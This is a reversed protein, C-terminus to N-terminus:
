TGTRAVMTQIQELVVPYNPEQSIEKVLYVSQVKMSADILFVARALLGLEPILVGYKEGFEHNKYDSLTTLNKIGEAACWRSQAFPLDMSVCVIYLLDRFKELEEHFRRAEKSCVPTDLSPLSMLVLPKGMFTSLKVVKLDAGVLECDPAIQGEKIFAGKLAFSKGKLTVTETM